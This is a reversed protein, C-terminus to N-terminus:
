AVRGHCHKFKKGSGCPCAANRPTQHWTSPDAANFAANVAPRKALAVDGGGAAAEDVDLAEMAGLAWSPAPHSEQMTPMVPTLAEPPPAVQL